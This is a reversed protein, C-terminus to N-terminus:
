STMLEKMTMVSPSMPDVVVVNRTHSLLRMMKTLTGMMTHMSMEILLTTNHCDVLQCYTMVRLDQWFYYRRMPVKSAGDM